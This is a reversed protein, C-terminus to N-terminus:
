RARRPFRARAWAGVQAVAMLVLVFVCLLPVILVWLGDNDGRPATWPSLILGPLGLLLGALWARAPAVFGVVLAALLLVPYYASPGTDHPPGQSYRPATAMTAVWTALGIIAATLGVTATRFRAWSSM